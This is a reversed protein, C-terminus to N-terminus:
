GAIKELANVLRDIDKKTIYIAFSIRVGNLGFNSMPRTDIGYVESLQRKVDSVNKDVVELTQIAGSLRDDAPTKLRFKPNNEVKSRFYAKLEYSRKHIKDAGINQHFDVASGLGLVEPLNRTNYNELRRISTDKHGRAVMLPKLYAQSEKKAYFVGIGKPSFLWKHASATYFDCKLDHLDITFMGASQAGDVAVFIGKQHAMESVEKVPLIMGNTNVIHCMSIVRTKPTIAKEYVAVVEEVTKPVVPLVPRVLKIGRSEQWAEWPITGSAHEHDALIVEDGPQLDFSRAILNMGETTNHILAIEEASVSFMDAVKQRVEEKEENWGGWMYKSPFGDLTKRFKESEEQVMKPSPGLSANNFYHLGPAFVFQKKIAEWFAETDEDTKLDAPYVPADNDMTTYSPLLVTGAVGTFLSKVFSRRYHNKM